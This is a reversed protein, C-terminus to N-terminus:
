ANKTNISPIPNNNIDTVINGFPDRQYIIQGHITKINNYTSSITGDSEVLWERRAFSPDLASDNIFQNFSIPINPSFYPGMAGQKGFCYRVVYVDHDLTGAAIRGRFDAVLNKTIHVNERETEKYYKKGDVGTYPELEKLGSTEITKNEFSKLKSEKDRVKMQVAFNIEKTVIEISKKDKVSMIGNEGFFGDIGAAHLYPFVSLSSNKANFVFSWNSIPLNSNLLQSILEKGKLASNYGSKLNDMSLIHVNKEADMVVVVIGLAKNELLGFILNDKKQIQLPLIFNLETQFYNEENIDLESITPKNTVIGRSSINIKQM